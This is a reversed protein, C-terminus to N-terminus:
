QSFGAVQQLRTPVHLNLLPEETGAHGVTTQIQQQSDDPLVPKKLAKRIKAICLWLIAVFVILIAGLSIQLWLGGDKGRHHSFEVVYSVIRYNPFENYYVDLNVRGMKLLESDDFRDFQLAMNGVEVENIFLHATRRGPFHEKDKQLLRQTPYPLPGLVKSYLIALKGIGTKLPLVYGITCGAWSFTKNLSGVTQYGLKKGEPANITPPITLITMSAGMKTTSFMILNGEWEFSTFNTSTISDQYDSSVLMYSSTDSKDITLHNQKSTSRQKTENFFNDVPTNYVRVGQRRGGNDSYKLILYNETADLSVFDHGEENSYYYKEQLRGDPGPQLIWLLNTNTIGYWNNRFYRLCKLDRSYELPRHLLPENLPANVIYERLIIQVSNNVIQLGLPTITPSLTSLNREQVIDCDFITSNIGCFVLRLMGDQNNLVTFSFNAMSHNIISDLQAKSVSKVLDRTQTANLVAYLSFDTGMLKKLLDISKIRTEPSQYRGNVIPFKSLILENKVPDIQLMLTFDLEFFPVILTPNAPMIIGEFEIPDNKLGFQPFTIM